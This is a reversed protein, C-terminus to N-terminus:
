ELVHLTGSSIGEATELRYVYMGGPLRGAAFRLSQTGVPVVGDLLRAVERGLLDYIRVSVDMTQPATFRITTESTFPNPFAELLPVETPLGLDETVTGTPNAIGIVYASGSSAGAHDDHWVGVLAIGPYVAVASGFQDFALGDSALLREEETWVGDVDRFVYVAGTNTAGEDNQLAGALLVDDYVSVSVGFQDFAAADSAALRQEETWVGDAHKFIYVAGANTGGAGHTRAGVVAVDGYVDLSFGFDM